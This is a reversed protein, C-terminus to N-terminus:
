HGPSRDKDQGGDTALRNRAWTDTPPFPRRLTSPGSDETETERNRDRQTRVDKEAPGQNRGLGEGDTGVGM